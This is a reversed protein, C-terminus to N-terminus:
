GLQELFIWPEWGYDYPTPFWEDTEYDYRGKDEVLVWPDPWAAMLDRLAEEKKTPRLKLEEKPVFHEKYYDRQYAALCTKCRRNRKGSKSYFEAVPQWGAACDPNSCFQQEEGNVFRVSDSVGRYSM